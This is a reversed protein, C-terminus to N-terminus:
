IFRLQFGQRVENIIDEGVVMGMVMAQAIGRTYGSFDGCIYLNPIETKVGNQLYISCTPKIEPAYLLNQDNNIGKIVKDLIEIGELIDVIIRRPYCSAIDGPTVQWGLRLTPKIYSKKISDPTSPVGRKLDGLRQIIPKGKGQSLALKAITTGYDMADELILNDLPWRVLIAFNTNQTLKSRDIHGNVCTEEVVVKGRHCTCFTRVYDQYTPAIMIFKPDFTIETVENMIQYPVEIRCGIELNKPKFTLNFNKFLERLYTPKQMSRGLALILFDATVKKMEINNRKYTIKFRLEEM